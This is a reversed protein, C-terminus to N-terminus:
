NGGPGDRRPVDDPKVENRTNNQVKVNNANAKQTNKSRNSSRNQKRNKAM